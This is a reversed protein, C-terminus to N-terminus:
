PHLQSVSLAGGRGRPSGPPWPGFKVNKKRNHNKRKTTSSKPLGRLPRRANAVIKQYELINKQYELDKKPVGFDKKPVGFRKKTSWFQVRATYNPIEPIQKKSTYKKSDWRLTIKLIGHLAASRGGRM